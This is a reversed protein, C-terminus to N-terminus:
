LIEFKGFIALKWLGINWRHEEAHPYFSALTVNDHKNLDTMLPNEDTMLWWHIKLHPAFDILLRWSYVHRPSTLSSIWDSGSCKIWHGNRFWIPNPKTFIKLFKMLAKWVFETRNPNKTTTLNWPFYKLGFETQNSFIAFVFIEM